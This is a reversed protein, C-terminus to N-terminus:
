RLRRLASHLDRRSRPYFPVDELEFELTGPSTLEIIANDVLTSRHVAVASKPRRSAPTVLGKPWHIGIVNLDRATVAGDGTFDGDAWGHCSPHQWNRGVQNLDSADIVGDLNADGLNTRLISQMLFTMDNQTVASDVNLDFLSIDAGNRLADLLIDVDRSSVVRDGTFDGPRRSAYNVRGPTPVSAFWKQAVGGFATPLVRALSSGLGDAARPWPPLDDYRVTDEEIHPIFMPNALPPASPRLLRVEEGSDSLQGSWGGWLAVDQLIGYHNRFADVRTANKSIKPNFSVVVLTANAGITTNVDFDFDVGGRLRWDTLSISHSTPNYIEIFELHDEVLQPDIALASSSPKGPNYNLESIVLPGVSPHLNECGLTVRAQPEMRRSETSFRGLSQGALTAGFHIDDVFSSVGGIGDPIVLYVDDGRSGSLAFDSADPEEPTSNFDREDIVLFSHAALITGAPIEYKLLTGAADSLFWGSLDIAADTPNHLEIADLAPSEPHALVENIIIGVLDDANRGPSGGFETSARWRYHKDIDQNSISSPERLVLTAGFGDTISPWLGRDKYQLRSIREGDQGTIEIPEGSNSLRGSYEGLVRKNEGYRLRFAVEDRVVVAHEGVELEVLPFEFQIGDTLAVDQLLLPTESVNAIELFEFDAAVLSDSTQLEFETPPYPHYNIETVTLNSADALVNDVVFVSTTPGSWRIGNRTRAIIQATEDVVISANMVANPSVAGNPLRPDTGDITFWVEGDEASITVATGAIVDGGGPNLEPRALFTDDIAVARRQIWAEMSNLRTTWDAVGDREAAAIGIEGRFEAILRGVHDSSLVGQRLEQWRDVYHQMFNPDQFLRQYWLRDARRFLEDTASGQFSGLDADWIPGLTLKGENAPDPNYVWLSLLMADGNKSLNSLIFYDIFSDVDIYKAYGDVPDNWAVDARGYLVDEMNQIWSSIATRQKDLIAFGNPEDYNLYANYQRPIDDGVSSSDHLDVSTQLSGNPGATHFNRPLVGDISISDMRNIELLWGGSQGDPAFEAFDLRARDRKVKEVIVYLGVHDDASVSDGDQNVFAEVYRFEPAWHGMQNSLRFLFTNDILTQDYSPNPAYLVWDAEADLGLPEIDRDDDLSDSWAEVSYGPQAFSSSFAGRVRIGARSQLDVPQTLRAGSAGPEFLLFTASQRPVQQIGTNTQNWGTNPIDGAGFNEIVMIPLDSIFDMADSAIHVFSETVVPGAIKGFAVVRARIQTSKDILIPQTYQPSSENPVTGDATYYIAGLNADLELMFPNVFTRSRQSFDVSEQIAQTASVEAANFQGPTPAVFYGTKTEGNPNIAALSAAFFSDEDSSDANLGHIALVNEGTQLLNVFADVNIKERLSTDLKADHAATAQSNWTPTAPANRRAIETGNLYAIFGDDYDVILDLETLDSPDGDIEFASRLYVSANVGFMEKGVPTGISPQYIPQQDGTHLEVYHFESTFDMTPARSVLGIHTPTIQGLDSSGEFVTALVTWESSDDLRYSAEWADATLSRAIRLSTETQNFEFKTTVPDTGALFDMRTLFSSGHNFELSLVKQQSQSDFLVIGASGNGAIRSVRTVFEFDANVRPLERLVLPALGRDDLTDEGAPVTTRLRGNQVIATAMSGAPIDLSWEPALQFNFDDRYTSGSELQEFGIGYTGQIWDSEDFGISTWDFGLTEDTPVFASLSSDSDILVQTIRGNDRGYSIDTSQPPYTPAFEAAVTRGDPEILGLYEGDNSLRFNTHLFGGTDVYDSIAQGTAFVVLFEEAPLEVSPFAWKRLDGADDTLYWGELDLPQDGANYVEIWDSANGDGDLVTSYNNALFETIIPQAALLLRQELLELPRLPRQKRWRRKREGQRRVM